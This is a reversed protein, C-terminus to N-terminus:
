RETNRLAAQRPVQHAALSQHMRRFVETRIAAGEDPTFQLGDKTAARLDGDSWFGHMLGTSSHGRGPLLLHGLEHAIVCGLFQEPWMDARKAENVAAAVYIYAISTSEGKESMPASGLKRSDHQHWAIFNLDLEPYSASSGDCSGPEVVEPFSRCWLLRLGIREFPKEADLEARKLWHEKIGYYDHIAVYV